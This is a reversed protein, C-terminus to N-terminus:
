GRARPHGALRRLRNELEPPVEFVLGVSRHYRFGSEVAAAAALAAAAERAAVEANGDVDGFWAQVAHWRFKQVPFPRSESAHDRCVRSVEEFLSREDRVATKYAFSLYADTRVNPFEKEAAIALRFADVASPWEGLASLCEARQSRAFGSQVNDAYEGIVRDFLKLSARLLEPRGTGLLHTAQIRVFQPRSAPRARALRRDFEDQDEKSWTEARFWDRKAM